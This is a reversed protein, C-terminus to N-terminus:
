NWVRDEILKALEAALRPREYRRIAEWDPQPFPRSKRTAEVAREVLAQIASRDRPDACWGAGTEELVQGIEGEPPAVALIPKGTALYEYIKGTAATPDTMTLLLYDTEQMHRLAEAQSMFGLIQVGSTRSDLWHREEATIRGVFRVEIQSRIEDPMEDLADFFYRPSTATYVTGVYTIVVKSGGHSRAAFGTFADPDYGNPLCAFKREPQGPYRARTEKLLSPTVTVVLDSLEVTAQEIAQARRRISESKQFDFATLFFRLWDDRFDSILKLHPFQRKLANGILFASFPPATVLVTDIQHERVIKRARRLAFPVWVVEPDPSLWRRVFESLGAKWGRVPTGTTISGAARDQNRSPSIWSWLRKRWSPPPMPTLARHVQVEPPLQRILEPDFQQAPPNSPALVHVQYGSRPLYKALSLARQVPIGGAPPFWYAVLLLGRTRPATHQVTATVGDSTASVGPM